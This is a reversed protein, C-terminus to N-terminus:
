AYHHSVSYRRFQLTQEKAMRKRDEKAKGEDKELRKILRVSEDCAGKDSYTLTM